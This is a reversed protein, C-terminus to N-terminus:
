ESLAHSGLGGFAAGGLSGLGGFTSPRSFPDPPLPRSLPRRPEQWAGEGTARPGPLHRSHLPLPGPELTVEGGM